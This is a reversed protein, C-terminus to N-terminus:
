RGSAREDRQLYIRARGSPTLGGPELGRAELDQEDSGFLLVSPDFRIKRLALEAQWLTGRLRRASEALEPRVEVLTSELQDLVQTLDTRAAAITARLEQLAQQSEDLARETKPLTTDLLRTRLQDMTTAATELASRLPTLASAQVGTTNDVDLLSAFSAAAQSLSQLLSTLNNRNADSFVGESLTTTLADISGVANGVLAALADFGGARRARIPVPEALDASFIQPPQDGEPWYGPYLDLYFQGLLGEQVLAVQASTPEIRLGEDALEFEVEVVLRRAGPRIGDPLTGFQQRLLEIDADSYPLQTWRLGTVDGVRRGAVAVKAGVALTEVEDFVTVCALRSGKLFDLWEWRGIRFAFLMFVAAAALVFLGPVIENRQYNPM